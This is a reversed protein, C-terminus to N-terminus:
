SKNKLYTNNLYFYTEYWDKYIQGLLSPPYFFFFVFQHKHKSTTIIYLPFTHNEFPSRAHIFDSSVLIKEEEEPFTMTM